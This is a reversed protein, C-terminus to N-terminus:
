ATVKGRRKRESLEGILGLYGTLYCDETYEAAAARLARESLSRQLERDQAIRRIAAGMQEATSCVFGAGSKRVAEGCGGADSTIAPLGHAFAELVTLPFVEPALSPLILATAGSYYGSVSEPDSSGQFRISPVAAYRERLVELLDGAGVIDLDYEPLGAFMALLRELGKAATVRGVYVFRPREPPPTASPLASFRAFTPLVHIPTTFGAERHREATYESPSLLADVSALARDRLATYRWLQPPIGSRLCCSFCEPKECVEKQNKWFWHTPCLLWHEHLTYLTLAPQGWPLIGPGGILSINHFNIVDFGRGLIERIEGSKLGPYGFQHTLLPSLAGWRSQLRHVTVGNQMTLPDQAAGRLRYADECHVVDVQHGRKVLAEALGQVFLADGGFHYPPYYTTLMCFRMSFLLIRGWPSGCESHLM